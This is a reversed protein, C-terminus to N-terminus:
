NFYRVSNYGLCSSCCRGRWSHEEVPGGKIVKLIIWELCLTLRLKRQFSTYEGPIGTINSSLYPLSSEAETNRTTKAGAVVRFVTDRDEAKHCVVPSSPHSVNSEPIGVDLQRGSRVLAQQEQKESDTVKNRCRNIVCFLM